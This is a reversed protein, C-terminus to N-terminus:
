SNNKKHLTIDTLLESSNTNDQCAVKLYFKDSRIKLSKFALYYSLRQSIFNLPCLCPLWFDVLEEYAQLLVRRLKPQNRVKMLALEDITAM